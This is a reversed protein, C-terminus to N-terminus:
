DVCVSKPNHPFMIRTSSAMASKKKNKESPCLLKFKKEFPAYMKLKETVFKVAIWGTSIGHINTCFQTWDMWKNLM